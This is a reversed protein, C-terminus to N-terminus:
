PKQVDVEEEDRKVVLRTRQGKEQKQGQGEVSGLLLGHSLVRLGEGRQQRGVEGRKVGGSEAVEGSAEDVFTGEGRSTKV